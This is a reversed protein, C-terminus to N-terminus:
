ASQKGIEDTVLTQPPDWKTLDVDAGFAHQLHTLLELGLDDLVWRDNDVRYLGEIAIDLTPGLAINNTRAYSILDAIVRDADATTAFTHLLHHTTHDRSSRRLTDRRSPSNWGPLQRDLSPPPSTWGDDYDFEPQWYVPEDIRHFLLLREAKRRLFAELKPAELACFQKYASRQEGAPLAHDLRFRADSGTLLEYLAHGLFLRRRDTAIIHADRCAQRWGRGPDIVNRFTWRRRAYDIPPPETMLCETLADLVMVTEAFMDHASLSAMVSQPTRSFSAPLAFQLALPNWRTYTGLRALMMAAVIPLAGTDQQNHQPLQAYVNTWLRQPIHRPTPPQQDTHPWKTGTAGAPRPRRPVPNYVRFTLQDTPTYDDRGSLDIAEILGSSARTQVRPTDHRWEYLEDAPGTPPAGNHQGLDTYREINHAAASLTPAALCDVAMTAIEGFLAADSTTAALISQSPMPQSPRDIGCSVRRPTGLNHVMAITTDIHLIVLRRFLQTLGILVEHRPVSIGCLSVVDPSPTSPSGILRDLWSQATLMPHGAPLSVADASRLDHGCITRPGAASPRQAHQCQWPRVRPNRRNEGSRPIHGCQPCRDLLVTRHVTCAFSWHLHWSLPTVCPHKTLCASCWRTGSRRVLQLRTDSTRAPSPSACLAAAEIKRYYAPTASHLADIDYGTAAALHEIVARDADFLAHVTRPAKADLRRLMTNVSVRYDLALSELASEITQGTVLEFVFPLARVSHPDTM